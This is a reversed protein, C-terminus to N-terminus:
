LRNYIPYILTIVWKSVKKGVEQSMWTSQNSAKTRQLVLIPIHSILQSLQACPIFSSYVSSEDKKWWSLGAFAFFVSAKWSVTDWFFVCVFFRIKLFLSMDASPQLWM